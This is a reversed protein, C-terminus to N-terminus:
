SPARRRRTRPWGTHLRAASRILGPPLVDRLDTAADVAGFDLPTPVLDLRGRAGTM